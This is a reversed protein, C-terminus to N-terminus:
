GINERYSEKIRKYRFTYIYKCYYFLRCPRNNETYLAYRCRLSAAFTHRCSHSTLKRIQAKELARYYLYKRYYDVRLKEGDKNFLYSGKTNYYKKIIKQIKPHVPIIRDRGADTKIGGIIIMNEIDVNFKTISLLEAVRMGTYILILVTDLWPISNSKEEIIKIEVDNFIEKEQKKQSPLEVYEAYNKKVIDDQMAYDFLMKALLRIKSLSSKSLKTRSIIEQLQSTKIDKIKEDKLISLHNWAVEYSQITKKSIKEYKSTSWEEYIERFTVDGRSAIPNKNYDALAQLSKARTLYYGVTYYEQKGEDTWGTTKRVIWPNRRKGSLKYVSGYGSPNRM